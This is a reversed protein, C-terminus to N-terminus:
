NLIMTYAAARNNYYSALVGPDFENDEDDEDDEEQEEKAANIALTYHSIAGRYDKKKYSDNGDQKHDAHTYGVSEDDSDTDGMM